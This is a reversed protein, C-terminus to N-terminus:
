IGAINSEIATCNELSDNDPDEVQTDEVEENLEDNSKKEKLAFSVLKENNSNSLKEKDKGSSTDEEEIRNRSTPLVFLLRIAKLLWAYYFGSLSLMLNLNFFPHVPLPWGASMGLTTYHDSLFTSIASSSSKSKSSKKSRSIADKKDDDISDVEKTGIHKASSPDNKKGLVAGLTRRISEIRRKGDESLQGWYLPTPLCSYFFNCRYEYGREQSIRWSLHVGIREQVTTSYEINTARHFTPIEHGSITLHKKKRFPSVQTATSAGGRPPTDAVTSAASVAALEGNNNNDYETSNNSIEIHTEITVNTGEIINTTTSEGDVADERNTTAVTDGQTKSKGPLLRMMRLTIARWLRLPWLIIWIITEVTCRILASMVAFTWQIKWVIGGVTWKIAELPLSASLFQVIMWPYGFYTSASIYPAALYQDYSDFNASLPIRFAAGVARTFVLSKYFSWGFGKFNYQERLASLPQYSSTSVKTSAKKSTSTTTKKKSKKKEQKGSATNSISSSSGSSSVRILSRVWRRRRRGLGDYKGVYYEWGFGDRSDRAMDIKWEGAFVYNRPPNCDQPNLSTSDRGGGGTIPSQTFRRSTWTNTKPNHIEHEYLEYLFTVSSSSQQLSSTSSTPPPPPPIVTKGDDVVTSSLIDSKRIDPTTDSSKLPLVSSQPSISPPQNSNQPSTSSSDYSVVFNIRAIAFYIVAALIISHKRLQAM